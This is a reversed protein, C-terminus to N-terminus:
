SSQTRQAEAVFASTPANARFDYLATHSSREEEGDFKSAAGENLLEASGNVIQAPDFDGFREAVLEVREYPAPRLTSNSRKM